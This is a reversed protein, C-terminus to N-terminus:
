VAWVGAGLTATSTGSVAASRSALHLQHVFMRTKPSPAPTAATLLVLSEFGRELAQIRAPSTQAPKRGLAAARMKAALVPLLPVLM